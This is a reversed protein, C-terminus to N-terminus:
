TTSRGQRADLYDQLIVAAATADVQRRRHRRGRGSAIMVEVATVTSLSEDHFVLPVDLDQAALAEALAAAYRRIRGAQYGESGDASLPLGVVIATVAQECALAALAEFDDAKARRRVVTLSRALTQTEDSVAVGIRREGVDLAMIRGRYGAPAPGLAADM